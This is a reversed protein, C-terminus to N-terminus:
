HTELFQEMPFPKGHGPFVTIIRLGKIKEVSARAADQDDIISWLNPKDVNALLDGCFFEGDGTIIGISGKSHGPIEIVKADFNKDSLDYGESLYFDPKFRDSESLRFMFGFAAKALINRKHRNWLMDGHEVMGSDDRHMAIKSGFKRRFYAANSSHDFDGHTLIILRLDGVHCGVEELEKEIEDRKNPRGTDILIFGSSIRVLYCNVSTNLIFPKTIIKIDM